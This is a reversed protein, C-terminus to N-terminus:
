LTSDYIEWLCGVIELDLVLYEGNISHCMIGQQLLIEYKQNMM